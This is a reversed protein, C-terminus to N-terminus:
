SNRALQALLRRVDIMLLADDDDLRPGPSEDPGGIIVPVDNDATQSHGSQDPSSVPVPLIAELEQEITAVHGVSTGSFPTCSGTAVGGALVLLILIMAQVTRVQRRITDVPLLCSTMTQNQQRDHSTILGGVRGGTVVGGEQRM